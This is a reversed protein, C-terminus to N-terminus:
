LFLFIAMAEPREMRHVLFFCITSARESHSLAGIRPAFVRLPPGDPQLSCPRLHRPFAGLALPRIAGAARPRVRPLLGQPPQRFPVVDTHRGQGRQLLMDEDMGRMAKLSTM